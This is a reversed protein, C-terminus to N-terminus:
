STNPTIIVYRTSKIDFTENMIDIDIENEPDVPPIPFKVEDPKSNHDSLNAFNDVEPEHVVDDLTCFEEVEHLNQSSTAGMCQIGINEFGQTVTVLELTYDAQAPTSPGAFFDQNVYPFGQDALMSMYNGLQQNMM